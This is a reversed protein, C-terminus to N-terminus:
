FGSIGVSFRYWIITLFIAIMMFLFMGWETSPKQQQNSRQSVFRRRSDDGGRNYEEQAQVIPLELYLNVPANTAELMLDGNPFENVLTSLFDVLRIRNVGNLRCSLFNQGEHVDPYPVISLDPNNHPDAFQRVMRKADNYLAEMESSSLREYGRM